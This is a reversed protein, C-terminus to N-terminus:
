LDSFAMMLARRSMCACRKSSLQGECVATYGTPCVAAARQNRRLQARERREVATWDGTLFAQRELEEMPPMSGCGALLALTVLIVVKM